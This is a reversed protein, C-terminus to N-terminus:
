CAVYIAKDVATMPNNPHSEGSSGVRGAIHLPPRRVVAFRLNISFSIPVRSGMSIRRFYAAKNIELFHTVYM